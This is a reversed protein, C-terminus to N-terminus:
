GGVRSKGDPLTPELRTEAELLGGLRGTTAPSSRLHM